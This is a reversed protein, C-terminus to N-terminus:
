RTDNRKEKEKKIALMFVRSAKDLQEDTWYNLFFIQNGFLLATGTGEIDHVDFALEEGDEQQFTFGQETTVFSGDEHEVGTIYTGKGKVEEIM